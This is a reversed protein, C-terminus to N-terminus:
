DCAGETAGDLAVAPAHDVQEHPDDNQQLHERLHALRRRGAQRREGRAKKAAKGGEINLSTASGGAQQRM